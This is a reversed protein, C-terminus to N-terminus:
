TKTLFMEMFMNDLVRRWHGHNQDVCLVAAAGNDMMAAGHGLNAQGVKALIHREFLEAPNVKFAAGFRALPRMHVIDHFVQNLLARSM